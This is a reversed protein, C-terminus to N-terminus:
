SKPVDFRMWVTKYKKKQISRGTIVCIATLLILLVVLVETIRRQIRESETASMDEKGISYAIKVGDITALQKTVEGVESVSIRLNSNDSWTIHPDDSNDANDFRFVLSKKSDENGLKHVYVFTTEEGHAIFYTCDIVHSTAIMGNGNPISPFDQRACNDDAEGLSDLPRIMGYLGFLVVAIGFGSVTLIFYRAIKGVSTSM